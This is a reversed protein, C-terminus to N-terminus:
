GRSPPSELAACDLDARTEPCDWTFLRSRSRTPKGCPLGSGSPRPEKPIPCTRNGKGFRGKMVKDAAAKVNDPVSKNYPGLKGQGEKVGWWSDESKWTGDMMAKARTTYYPGWIDLNATKPLFKKKM